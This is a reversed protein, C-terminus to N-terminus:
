TGANNGCEMVIRGARKGCSVVYNLACALTGAKQKGKIKQLWLLKCLVYLAFVFGLAACAMNLGM